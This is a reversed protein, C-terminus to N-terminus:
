SKTSLKEKCMQLDKEATSRWYNRYDDTILMGTASTLLDVAKQISDVAEEYRKLSMLAQGKNYYAAAYWEDIVEGEEPNARKYSAIARNFWSLSKQHKNLLRHLTMGANFLSWRYLPNSDPDDFSEQMVNVALKYSRIGNGYDKMSEYITAEDIICKAVAIAIEEKSEEDEKYDYIKQIIEKIKMIVKRKMPVCCDPRNQMMTRMTGSVSALNASKSHYHQVIHRMIMDYVFLKEAIKRQPLGDAFNSFVRVSADPTLFLDVPPFVTVTADM